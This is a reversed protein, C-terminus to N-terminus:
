YIIANVRKLLEENDIPKQIFRNEDLDCLIGTPTRSYIQGATLFCVKAEPNIKRLERYLNIGNMRSMKIDLILLDYFSNDRFHELALIPDDFSNVEFGYGELVKKLAFDVDPEDDVVLIRQM